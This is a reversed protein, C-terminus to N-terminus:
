EMDELEKDTVKKLEESYGEDFEIKHKIEQKERYDDDFRKLYLTADHVNRSARSGMGQYVKTLGRGMAKVVENHFWENFGDKHEWLYITTRDVGVEKALKSVNVRDESTIFAQLYKLQMLSPKFKNVNTSKSM